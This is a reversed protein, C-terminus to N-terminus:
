GHMIVEAWVSVGRGIDPDANAPKPGEGLYVRTGICSFSRRDLVALASRCQHIRLIFIAKHNIISKRPIASGLACHELFADVKEEITADADRQNLDLTFPFTTPVVEDYVDM